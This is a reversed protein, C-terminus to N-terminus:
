RPFFFCSIEFVSCCKMDNLWFYITCSFQSPCFCFNRSDQQLFARNTCILPLRNIRYLVCRVWLLMNDSVEKLITTIDFDDDVRDLIHQFGLFDFAESGDFDYLRGLNRLGNLFFAEDRGDKDMAASFTAMPYYFSHFISSPFINVVDVNFCTISTATVFSALVWRSLVSPFFFVFIFVSLDVLEIFTTM